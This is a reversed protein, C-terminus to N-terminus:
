HATRPIQDTRAASVSVDAHTIQPLRILNESVPRVLLLNAPQLQRGGPVHDSGAAVVIFQMEKRELLHAAQGLPGVM